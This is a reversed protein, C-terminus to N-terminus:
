QKRLLSTDIDSLGKLRLSTELKCNLRKQLRHILTPPLGNLTQVVRTKKFSEKFVQFHPKQPQIRLSHGSGVGSFSSFTFLDSKDIDSHDKVIKHVLNQDYIRKRLSLSTAGFQTLRENYSVDFLENRVFM